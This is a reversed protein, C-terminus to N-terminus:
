AQVHAEAVDSRLELRTYASARVICESLGDRLHLVAEGEDGYVPVLRSALLEGDHPAHVSV